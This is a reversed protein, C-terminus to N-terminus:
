DPSEDCAGVPEIAFHDDRDEVDVVRPQKMSLDMAVYGVCSPRPALALTKFGLREWREAEQRDEVPMVAIGCGGGYAHIIRHVIAEEILRGRWLETVEIERFYLVDLGEGNQYSEKLVNDDFFVDDLDHLEQSDADLVDSMSEGCNLVEGGHIIAFRASGVRSIDVESKHLAVDVWTVFGSDASPEILALETSCRLVLM